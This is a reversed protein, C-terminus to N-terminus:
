NKHGSLVTYIHELGKLTWPGTTAASSIKFRWGPGHFHRGPNTDSNKMRCPVRVRSTGSITRTVFPTDGDAADHPLIGFTLSTPSADKEFLFVAAVSRKKTILDMQGGDVIPPFIPKTMVVPSITSGDQTNGNWLKYVFAGTATRAEGALLVSESSSEARVAHGFNTGTWEHWTGHWYNWAVSTNPEASGDLPLCWVLMGHDEDDYVFSKFAFSRNIRALTDKKPSSIIIDNTLDFLRIDNQPTLYALM